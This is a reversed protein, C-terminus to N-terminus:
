AEERLHGLLSRVKVRGEVHGPLEIPLAAHAIYLVQTWKNETEPNKEVRQQYQSHSLPGTILM